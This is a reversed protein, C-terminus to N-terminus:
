LISNSKLLENMEELSQKIYNCLNQLNTYNTSKSVVNFTFSEANKIYRIAYGDDVVPGYGALEIGTASTTSTCITSHTLTKYGKDTFFDPISSTNYHTKHVNYM